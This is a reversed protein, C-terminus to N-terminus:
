DNRLMGLVNTKLEDHINESGRAYKYRKRTSTEKSFLMHCKEFLGKVVLQLIRDISVNNQIDTQSNNYGCLIIHIGETGGAERSSTM